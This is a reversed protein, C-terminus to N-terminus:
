TAPISSANIMTASLTAYCEMWADRTETTWDKGLGQQLTWLLTVGVRKYHAPKVGYSNHRRAMNIIEENLEDLRDLRGVITNLMHVLKRYQDDMNEPFMNRLSATDSFLKSYFLDGVVAPDILRIM